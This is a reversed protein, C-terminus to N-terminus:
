ALDLRPNKVTNKMLFSGCVNISCCCSSMETLLARPDLDVRHAGCMSVSDVIKRVLRRVDQTCLYLFAVNM